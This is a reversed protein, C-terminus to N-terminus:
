VHVVPLTGFSKKPGAETQGPVGLPQPARDHAPKRQALAFVLYVAITATIFLLYIVNGEVTVLVSPVLLSSVLLIRKM